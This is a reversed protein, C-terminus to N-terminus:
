INNLPSNDIEKKLQTVKQKMYKLPKNNPVYM